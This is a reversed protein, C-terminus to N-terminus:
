EPKLNIRKMLGSVQALGSRMSEAMEEPTLIAIETANTEHYSRVEASEM